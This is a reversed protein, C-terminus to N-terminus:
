TDDTGPMWQKSSSNSSSGGGGDAARCEDSAQDGLGVKKM